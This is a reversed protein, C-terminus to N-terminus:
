RKLRKNEHQGANFTGTANRHLQQPVPAPEQGATDSTLANTEEECSQRTNHTTNAQRETGKLGEGRKERPLKHAM